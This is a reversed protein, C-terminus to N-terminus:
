KGKVVDILKNLAMKEAYYDELQVKNAIDEIKKMGAIAEDITQRHGLLEDKKRNLLAIGCSLCYYGASYYYAGDLQIRPIERTLTQNCRRCECKRQKLPNNHFVYFRSHGGLTFDWVNIKTGHKKEYKRFPWIM